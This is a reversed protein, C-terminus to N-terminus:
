FNFDDGEYFDMRAANEFVKDWYTTFLKHFSFEDPYEHFYQYSAYLFEETLVKYDDVILVPLGRFLSDLPSTLVIPITGVMLAEWARHTDIGKGPPAIAFKYRSLEDLYGKPSRLPAQPIGQQEFWNWLNARIGQHEAWFTDDTTAVNFYFYLLRDKSVKEITLQDISDQFEPITFNKFYLLPYIGYRIYIKRMVSIDEAFVVPSHFQWKPGLPIPILKPHEVCINKAFWKKLYPSTLLLETKDCNEKYHIPHRPHFVFPVCYDFNSFSILSYHTLQYFLLFDVNHFFHDFHIFIMVHIKHQLISLLNDREHWFKKKSQNNNNNTPHLNNNTEMEMELENESGIQIQDNSQMDVALIEESGLSNV